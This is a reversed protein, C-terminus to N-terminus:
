IVCSTVPLVGRESYVGGPSVLIDQHVCENYVMVSCWFVVGACQLTVSVLGHTQESRLEIVIEEGLKQVGRQSIHVMEEATEYFYFQYQLTRNYLRFTETANTNM